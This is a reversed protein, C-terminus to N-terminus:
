CGIWRWVGCVQLPFGQAELQIQLSQGRDFVTLHARLLAQVVSASSDHFDVQRM